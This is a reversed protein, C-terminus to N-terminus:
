IKDPLTICMEQYWEPNKSVAVRIMKGDNVASDIDGPVLQVQLRNESLEMYMEDIIPVLSQDIVM